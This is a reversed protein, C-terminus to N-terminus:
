CPYPCSVRCYGVNPLTASRAPIRDAQFMLSAPLRSRAANCLPHPTLDKSMMVTVGSRGTEKWGLRKYLRQTASMEIHTNLALAAFGQERSVQEAHDILRKGLGKGGHSPHVALNALKISNQAAVLVAQGVCGQDPSFM